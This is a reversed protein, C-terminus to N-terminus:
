QPASLIKKTAVHAVRLDDWHHGLNGYQEKFPAARVTLEPLTAREDHISLRL